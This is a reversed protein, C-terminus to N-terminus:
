TSARRSTPRASSSPSVASTANRSIRSSPACSARRTPSCCIRRTWEKAPCTPPTRGVEPNTPITVVDLKYISRFENEETKATGTMGSLKDYLRFYNQFTITALTKNESQIRVNEKAEIAQHLGDSYRRGIMLRGTFEDVIVVEGDSIIYDQDRHMVFNARLANNIYHYLETNEVDALNEVEFYTEAREVGQETLNIARKKEDIEYDEDKILRRAFRNAKTYMESSKGGKGSIILPTRAEDILISDVEDIIAFALDRQVMDQKRIVMNDRLYDFGLENNTAYTIDCNYAARKAEPRMGSVAVGVTLGLFRHIKGMWEADRRALYDNVTVIHVGKGTLANLYAPLTAVLTKGEGTRMEAIRGQHLAIGGMLQVKFHQMNLVRKGAERVVAFAEPLLDELTEFNENYRRKFQETMGRLEDDTMAAFRDELALIQEAKASLKRVNRRNDSGMIFSILGM